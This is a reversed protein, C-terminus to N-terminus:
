ADACRCYCTNWRSVRHTFPWGHFWLSCGLWGDHRRRGDNGLLQVRRVYVVYIVRCWRHINARWRDLILHIRYYSDRAFENIEGGKTTNWWVLLSGMGATIGFMGVIAM